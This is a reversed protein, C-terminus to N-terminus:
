CGQTGTGACCKPPPPAVLQLYSQGTYNCADLGSPVTLDASFKQYPAGNACAVPLSRYARIPYTLVGTSIPHKDASMEGKYEVDVLVDVFDDVVASPAPGPPPLLGDFLATGLEPSILQTSILAEGSASFSAGFNTIYPKLTGGIKKSLRYTIVQQKIVPRNRNERELLTSSGVSVSPQRINEAGAIRVGIFFQPSNAAVDLYGSATFVDTSKTVDCGSGLPFFKAIYFGEDQNACSTLALLGIVILSKLKM